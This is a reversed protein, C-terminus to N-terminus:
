APTNVSKNCGNESSFKSADDNNTTELEILPVLIDAM